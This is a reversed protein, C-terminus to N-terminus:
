NMNIMRRSKRIEKFNLKQELCELNDNLYTEGWPSIITSSSAMDDDASNSVIVFTQNMIALAQSLIELHRKRPKGWRAPILIIDAGELQKWLEKFRLEFCILIGYSIGDISFKVIDEKM